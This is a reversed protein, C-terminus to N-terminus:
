GDDGSPAPLTFTIEAANNGEDFEPEVNTTDVRVFATFTTPEECNYRIPKNRFYLPLEGWQLEEVTTVGSEIDIGASWEVTFNYAPRNGWNIVGLQVLIEDGCEAGRTLVEVIPQLEPLPEGKDPIGIYGERAPAPPAAPPIAARAGPSPAGGTATPPLSSRVAPTPYPTRTPLREATPYPTYTPHPTSTPYPTVTLLAPDITPPPEETDQPGFPLPPLSACGALLALALILAVAQLARQM